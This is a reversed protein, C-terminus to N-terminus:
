AAVYGRLSKEKFSAHFPPRVGAGRKRRGEKEEMEYVPISDINKM